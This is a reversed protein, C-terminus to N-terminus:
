AAMREALEEVREAISDYARAFAAPTGEAIPDAISWHLRPRDPFPVGGERARDCVTVVLDPAEKVADLGRPAAPSLDVGRSGAIAVALPHVARAPASGASEGVFGTRGRWLVAAIQSRAANRTCVFLVRESREVPAQRLLHALQEPHRRVYRRRADGSSRTRSVLGVEELVRLHFALLNMPLDSREALDKPTLDGLALAEVIRLRHADGLARHLAARAEYDAEADM